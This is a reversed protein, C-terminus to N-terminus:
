KGSYIVCEFLTEILRRNISIFHLIVSVRLAIFNNIKRVKGISAILYDNTKGDAFPWRIGMWRQLNRLSLQGMIRSAFRFYRKRSHAQRRMRAVHVFQVFNCQRQDGCTASFIVPQQWDLISDNVQFVFPSASSLRHHSNPPHLSM